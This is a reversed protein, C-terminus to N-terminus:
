RHRGGYTTGGRHVPAPASYHHHHPVSAGFNFQVAPGPYYGRPYPYYTPGIYMPMPAVVAPAVVAPAAYTPTTAGPCPIESGTANDICQTIIQRRQVDVPSDAPEDPRCGSATGVLGLVSATTAFTKRLDKMSMLKGKETGSVSVRSLWDGCYVM